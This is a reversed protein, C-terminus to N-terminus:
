WFMYINENGAVTNNHQMPSSFFIMRGSGDGFLIYKRKQSCFGSTGQEFIEVITRYKPKIYGTYRM